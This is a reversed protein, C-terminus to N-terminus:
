PLILMADGFSYFRYRRAIAQQYIDKLRDLGVLAGVLALLTSRPLHFNTIMVDTLEFAYGPQILLNTSGSIDAAAVAPDLIEGAAAELTRVTTTGVMVMRGSKARQRRIREVTSRPIFFSEHHMPHQDLTAAEVPLFTGLGVHLTVWAQDIHRQTLRTFIEPTFHLGATPAALAGATKAYITQYNERDLEDNGSAAVGQHGEQLEDGTNHQKNARAKEIYPPLPATGIEGLVDIAPRRDDVEVIWQGKQRERDLLTMRVCVGTKGMAILSAGAAARGRTRLMVRWRGPSLEALFLGTILGGSDKKLSLRAPLVRTDNALLLDGPNLLEPLDSFHRHEVAGTGRRYVLLRSRDRPHVPNKAILEAPLNYDLEDTHLM